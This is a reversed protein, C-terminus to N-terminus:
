LLRKGQRAQEVAKVFERANATIARYRGEKAWGIPCLNSGVGVAVVGASFWDVLNNLSVGGTPMMTVEPFPARIAKIYEPGAFSGPFIKVIDSGARYAQWVESPTLAGLLTLLGSDVMTHALEVEFHPSVIFRAGAERAEEVQEPRTLTGMGLLIEDGYRNDLQEVVRAAEPTTYTIEIGLVGGAILADVMKLMLDVSPGRM